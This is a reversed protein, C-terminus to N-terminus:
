NNRLLTKDQLKGTRKDGFNSTFDGIQIRGGYFTMTTHSISQKTQWSLIKIFLGRPIFFMLMSKTKSNAQEAKKLRGQVSCAM